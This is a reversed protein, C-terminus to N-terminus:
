YLFSPKGLWLGPDPCNFLYSEKDNEACVGPYDGKRNGLDHIIQFHVHPPWHGNENTQGLHGIKEGSLFIQGPKLQKLDKQSLHGYLSHTKKGQWFHEPIVTPGYNGFGINDRFSHVKGELPCFVPKGPASWIDVGLHINRYSYSNDAFVMSRQYLSRNEGYGGIGYKKDQDALIAAVFSEFAITDLLDIQQLAVNGASMDLAISNESTLTEGMIPFFSDSQISM